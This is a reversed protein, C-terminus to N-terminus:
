PDVIVYIDDKCEIHSMLCVYGEHINPYNEPSEWASSDAELWDDIQENTIGRNKLISEIVDNDSQKVIYDM